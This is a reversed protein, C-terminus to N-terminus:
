AICLKNNRYSMVSSIIQANDENCVSFADGSLLRLDSRGAPLVGDVVIVRLEFTVSLFSGFSYIIDCKYNNLALIQCICFM